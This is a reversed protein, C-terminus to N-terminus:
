KIKDDLSLLLSKDQERQVKVILLLIQKLM